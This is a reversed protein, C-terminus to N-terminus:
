SSLGQEALVNSQIFSTEEGVWVKDELFLLANIALRYAVSNAERKIHKVECFHMTRLLSLM